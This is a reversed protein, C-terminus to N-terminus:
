AGDACTLALEAIIHFYAKAERIRQREPLLDALLSRSSKFPSWCFVCGSCNGWGSSIGHLLSCADTSPLLPDESELEPVAVLSKQCELNIVLGLM